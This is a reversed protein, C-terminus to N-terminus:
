PTTKRSLWRVLVMLIIFPIGNWLIEPLAVSLRAQDAATIGVGTGRQFLDYCYVVANAVKFLFFFSSAVLIDGFFEKFKGKGPITDMPLAFLYGLAAVLFQGYLLFENHFGDVIFRLSPDGLRSYYLGRVGAFYLTVIAIVIYGFWFLKRSQSMSVLFGHVANSIRERISIGTGAVKPAKPTRAPLMGKLRNQVDDWTFPLRLRGQM